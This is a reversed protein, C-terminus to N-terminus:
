HPSFNLPVDFWMAQAIGARTGPVYRWNMVAHLAARDLREFGSSQRISGEHALGDTGILVRIVVKGQEGWRLSIDPYVPPPNHLYDATSSPLQTTPLVPALAAQTNVGQRPAAPTPINKEASDVVVGAAPVPLPDAVAPWSTPTIASIVSPKNSKSTDQRHPMPRVHQRNTVQVPLVPLTQTVSPPSPAPQLRVILPRSDASQNGTPQVSLVLAHLGIVGAVLSIQQTLRRKGVPM